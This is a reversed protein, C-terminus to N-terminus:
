ENKSINSLSSGSVWLERGTSDAAAAAPFWSHLPFQLAAARSFLSGSFETISHQFPSKVGPFGQRPIILLM